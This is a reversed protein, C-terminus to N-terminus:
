DGGGGGGQVSRKGQLAERWGSVRTTSCPHSWVVLAGDGLPMSTKDYVVGTKGAVTMEPGTGALM